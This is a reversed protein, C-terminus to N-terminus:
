DEDGLARRLAYRVGELAAQMMSPAAPDSDVEGLTLLRLDEHSPERERLFRDLGDLINLAVRATMQDVPVVVTPDMGGARAQELLDDTSQATVPEGPSAVLDHDGAAERREDPYSGAPVVVYVGGIGADLATHRAAVRAAEEETPYLGMVAVVTQHRVVAFM